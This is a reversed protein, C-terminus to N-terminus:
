CTHGGSLIVTCINSFSSCPGFPCQNGQIYPVNIRNYWEVNPKRGVSFNLSKLTNKHDYKFIINGFINKGGADEKRFRM